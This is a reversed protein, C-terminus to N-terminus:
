PRIATDKGVIAALGDFVLLILILYLLEMRAGEKFPLRPFLRVKM